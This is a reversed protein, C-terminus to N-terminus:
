LRFSTLIPQLEQDLRARQWEAVTGTIQTLVGEEIRFLHRQLVGLGPRVQFSLTISAGAAGDAFVVAGEDLRKVGPVGASFAEVFADRAAEPATRDTAMRAMSVSARPAPPAARASMPARVARAAPAVATLETPSEASLTWDAPVDLGAM